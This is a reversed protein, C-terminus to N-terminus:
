LIGGAIGIECTRIIHTGAPIESEVARFRGSM